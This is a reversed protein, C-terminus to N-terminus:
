KNYNFDINIKLIDNDKLNLKERLYKDSIVEIIDTYNSREPFIIFCKTGDIHANFCKVGGFTREKDKFGEIRIGEAGRIQRLINEYEPFIKINLTGPYPNIKLKYYFQDMYGKKSIYYKGEGLGNKITGEMEFSQNIELISYLDNLEKYLIDLSKEMLIIKQKRSEMKRDIYKEDLLEIIMRSATQQSVNMERALENSSIYLINKGGAIRKLTKITEYITSNM